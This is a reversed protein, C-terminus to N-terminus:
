SAEAKLEYNSNLPRGHEDLPTTQTEAEATGRALLGVLVFIDVVGIAWDVWPALDLQVGVLAAAVAVSQVIAVWVMRQRIPYYNKRLTSM